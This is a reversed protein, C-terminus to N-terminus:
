LGRLQVSIRKMRAVKRFSILFNEEQEGSKKPREPLFKLDGLFSIGEQIQLGEVGM